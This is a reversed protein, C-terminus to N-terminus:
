LRVLRAVRRAGEFELVAFYVGPPAPRQTEALGDWSARAEGAAQAGSFLRRVLHGAADVISLRVRGARPLSVTLACSGRTPNAGVIALGLLTGPAPRADVVVGGKVIVFSDRVAGVDDLFVADLENGRVDIVMSGLVNLSRAMVPHNLTGGSVQASSGAVAVVEGEHPLPSGSSKLYAGDGGPRGDGADKLMAPTLTGSSGYHGDVLFSREYSHSHGNLVLDVGFDELVPLANERMDRMRGGSDLVDDSNHSGKTYPPHHWYAIIWRRDTAALDSELWTMMAGTPSRDSGESDLCVFHIDGHDFSYWAETSSPLGGAEAATPMTFLDYYDNATGAYLIDHNGRTPWLVHTRLFAAYPTFLGNTYDADAGASYANDGLMLWVDTPAGGTFAAFADRVRSQAPGPLGSDGLVWVRTTAPSGATPPTDFWTAADDGTLVQTTTGVAYTFRTAPALGTLRLEHETTLVPSTAADALAGPAPGLRVRSDTPVDTRWRVTIADPAGMMLYPGRTLAAQAPAALLVALLVPMWARATM